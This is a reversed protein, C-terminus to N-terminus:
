WKGSALRKSKRTFAIVPVMGTLFLWLSAPLPVAPSGVPCGDYYCHSDEYYFVAATVNRKINV